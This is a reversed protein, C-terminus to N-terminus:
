ELPFSESLWTGPPDEYRLVNSIPDLRLDMSAGDTDGTQVVAWMAYACDRDGPKCDHVPCGLPLQLTVEFPKNAARIAALRKSGNVERHAQAASVHFPAIVKDNASSDANLCWHRENSYTIADTEEIIHFSADLVLQSAVVLTKRNTVSTKVFDVYAKPDGPVQNVTVSKLSQTYRPAKVFAAEKRQVCEDNTLEVGYFRVRPAYLAKLAAAAHDNHASDWRGLVGRAVADADAADLHQTDNTVVAVTDDETTVRASPTPAEHRARCAVFMTTSFLCAVWAAHM